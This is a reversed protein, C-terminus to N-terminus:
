VYDSSLYDFRPPVVDNILRIDANAQCVNEQSAFVTSTPWPIAIAPVRFVLQLQKTDEM